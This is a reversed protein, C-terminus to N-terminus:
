FDGPRIFTVKRKQSARAMAECAIGNKNHDLHPFYGPQGPQAGSMELYDAVICGSASAYHKAAILPPFHSALVLYIPGALLSGYVAMRWLLKSKGSMEHDAPMDWERDNVEALKPTASLSPKPPVPPPTIRSTKGLTSNPGDFTPEVYDAKTGAPDLVPVAPFPSNMERARVREIPTPPRLDEMDEEYFEDYDLDGPDIAGEDVLPTRLESWRDQEALVVASDPIEDAPVPQVPDPEPDAVGADDDEVMERILGTAVTADPAETESPVTLCVSIRREPEPVREDDHAMTLFLADEGLLGRPGAWRALQGFLRGFLASDGAFPGTHRV